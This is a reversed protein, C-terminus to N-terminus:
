GERDIRTEKLLLGKLDEDLNSDWKIANGIENSRLKDAFLFRQIGLLECLCIKDQMYLSIFKM